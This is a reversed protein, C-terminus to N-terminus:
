KVTTNTATTYTIGSSDVLKSTDCTITANSNGTTSTTSYWWYPTTTSPYNITVTRGNGAAYGEDYAEKILDRLQRETFEIKNNKNLTFVKIM